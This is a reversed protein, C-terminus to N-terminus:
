RFWRHGSNGGAACLRNGRPLYLGGAGPGESVEEDVDLKEMFMEIFTSAEQQQKAAADEESMVNIAWGTLASSLRVNQGNRGIAQALNEEEVAIDMTHSDKM